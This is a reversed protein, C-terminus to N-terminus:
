HGDLPESFYFYCGVVILNAETRCAADWKVCFVEVGEVGGLGVTKMEELIMSVMASRNPKNYLGDNANNLASHLAHLPTGEPKPSSKLIKHGLLVVRRSLLSLRRQIRM